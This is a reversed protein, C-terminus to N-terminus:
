TGGLAEFRDKLGVIGSGRAPDAGGAGVGRIWVRMDRDDTEVGVGPDHSVPWRRPRLVVPVAARCARHARSRRRLLGVGGAAQVVSAELLRRGSGGVRECRHPYGVTITVRLILRVRTT